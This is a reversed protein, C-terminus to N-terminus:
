QVFELKNFGWDDLASRFALCKSPRSYSLSNAKQVRNLLSRRKRGDVSLWWERKMCTHEAYEFATQIAVTTLHGKAQAAFSEAFREAPNQRKLWTLVLAPKKDSILIHAAVYVSDVM